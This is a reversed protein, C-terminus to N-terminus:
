FHNVESTIHITRKTPRGYSTCAGMSIALVLLILPAKRGLLTLSGLAPVLLSCGSFTFANTNGAAKVKPFIPRLLKRESQLLFRPIESNRLEKIVSDFFSSNRKSANLMVFVGTNAMSSLLM